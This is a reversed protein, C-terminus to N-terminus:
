RNIKLILLEKSWGICAKKTMKILVMKHPISHNLQAIPSTFKQTCVLWHNHLVNQSSIYQEHRPCSSLAPLKAKRVVVGRRTNTSIAAGSGQILAGRHWVGVGGGLCCHKKYCHKESGLSNKDGTWGSMKLVYHEHVENKCTLPYM